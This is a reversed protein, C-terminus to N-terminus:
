RAPALARPKPIPRPPLHAILPIHYSIISRHILRDRSAPPSLLHVRHMLSTRVDSSRCPDIHITQLHLHNGCMLCLEPWIHQWKSLHMGRHGAKRYHCLKVGSLLTCSIHASFPQPTVIGAPACQLPRSTYRDDWSSGNTNLCFWKYQGWRGESFTEFEERIM